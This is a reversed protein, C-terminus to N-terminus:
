DSIINRNLMRCRKQNLFLLTEHTSCVQGQDCVTMKWSIKWASDDITVSCLVIPYNCDYSSLASDLLQALEIGFEREYPVITLFSILARKFREMVTQLRATMTLKLLPSAVFM